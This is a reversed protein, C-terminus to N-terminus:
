LRSPPYVTELVDVREASPGACSVVFRQISCLDAITQEERTYPRLGIAAPVMDGLCSMIAQGWANCGVLYCLRSGSRPPGFIPLLDPTESYVGARGVAPASRDLQPFRAYTWEAMRRCREECHDEKLASFHDEGSMRVVGDVVCWDHSFGYTFLNPCCPHAMGGGSAKSPPTSPLAVLYSYCPRLLGSLDGGHFFAGTAVVVKGASVAKGDSLRVIAPATADGDSVSVVEAGDKWVTVGSLKTAAELLRESYTASDIIADNPFRLGCTFGSRTGTVEAVEASTLKDVVCGMEKLLAFERDVAAADSAPAVMVSGLQHLQQSPNPLHALAKQKQLALGRATMAFWTRGDEITHHHLFEESTAAYLSVMMKIAPPHPPEFVATGSVWPTTGEGGNMKIKSGRGPSGREIVLISKPRPATTALAHAATCGAVGAGVVVVEYEAAM